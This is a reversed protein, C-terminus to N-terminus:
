PINFYYRELYAIRRKADEYRSSQPYERILRRYYDLASRIDRVPSNAELIQGYLWWAEDSGAPFREKFQELIELASVVHGADYEARVRRIYEGPPSDRDVADQSTETGTEQPLDETPAAPVIGPSEGSSPPGPPPQDEPLDEGGRIGPAGSPTEEAGDGSPPAPVEPWRPEAIVRGRDIPPNFWGAGSHDPAEGVIVQVYDNLIYDRLFDEKYFKLAYTGPEAARFVFSQGEPDLRRSDYDVGRRQGLEGLYVWGTGRFPIEVLQGVTARIIRSFAIEEEQVAPPTRAPLDPLPAAPVPVPEREAPSPPEPEVPRISAPPEPPVAPPVVPPPPAAPATVPPEAPSVASPEAAGPEPLAASEQEPPPLVPVYSEALDLGPEILSTGEAASGPFPLLVTDEAGEPVAPEEGETGDADMGDADMGDADTGGARVPEAAPVATDAPPPGGKCSPFGLILAATFLALVRRKRKGTM